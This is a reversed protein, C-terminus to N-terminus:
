EEPLEEGPNLYHIILQPAQSGWRGFHEVTCAQAAMLQADRETQGFQYDIHLEQQEEQRFLPVQWVLKTRLTMPHPPPKRGLMEAQKRDHDWHAEPTDEISVPYERVGGEAPVYFTRETQEGTYFRVEARPELPLRIRLPWGVYLCLTYPNM